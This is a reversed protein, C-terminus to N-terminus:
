ESFTIDNFTDILLTTKHRANVIHRRVTRVIAGSLIMVTDVITGAHCNTQSAKKAEENKIFSYDDSHITSEYFTCELLSQPDIAYIITTDGGMRADIFLSYNWNHSKVFDWIERRAKMSDVACILITNQPTANDQPYIHPVTVIDNDAFLQVIEALADVKRVPPVGEIIVANDVFYMQNSINHPEIVDADFITIDYLGMKALGVVTWSGVSGCGAVVIPKQYSPNAPDFLNLQRDFTIPM